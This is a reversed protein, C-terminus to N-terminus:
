AARVSVESWCGLGRGRRSLWRVFGGGVFYSISVLVLVLGCARGVSGRGFSICGWVMCEWESSYM